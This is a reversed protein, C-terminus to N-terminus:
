RILDARAPARLEYLLRHQCCATVEPQPEEETGCCSYMFVFLLVMCPPNHLIRGPSYIYSYYVDWLSCFTVSLVKM